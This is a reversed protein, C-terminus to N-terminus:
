PPFRFREANEGKQTERAVLGQGGAGLMAGGVSLRRQGSVGLETPCIKRTAFRRSSTPTDFGNPRASRSASGRAPDISRKVFERNPPTVARMFVQAPSYTILHGCSLDRRPDVLGERTKRQERVQEGTGSSEQEIRWRRIAGGVSLRRQGSVGLETLCCEAQCTRRQRGSQDFPGADTSHLVPRLSTRFARAAAMTQVAIPVATRM